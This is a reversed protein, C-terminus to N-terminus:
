TGSTARFLRALEIDHRLLEVDDPADGDDIVRIARRLAIRASGELRRPALHSGREDAGTVRVEVAGADVELRCEALADIRFADPMTPGRLVTLGIAPGGADVRELLGLGRAAAAARLPGDALVRLWGITDHVVTADAGWRCLASLARPESGFAFADEVVDPRLRPRELIVPADFSAGAPPAAAPRAVVIAAAGAAVARHAADWWSGEGAVVVIAGAPHATGRTTLPLEAIATRYEALSALVPHRASM